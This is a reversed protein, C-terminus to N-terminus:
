LHEVEVGDRLKEVFEPRITNFHELTLRRRIAGSADEVPTVKAEQREAVLIIHLGFQTEVLDSVQGAELEFAAAAFPEVM